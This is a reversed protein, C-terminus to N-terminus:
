GDFRRRTRASMCWCRGPQWSSVERFAAGPSLQGHLGIYLGFLITVLLAPGGLARVTTSMKGEDSVKVRRMAADEQRRLLMMVGLVATFLIFEEGLTDFGRYDYNIANVADTAHREYVALRSIVDGYPGRHEKRGAPVPGAVNGTRLIILARIRTGNTGGITEGCGERYLYTADLLKEYEDRTFYDTPAQTVSIRGLRDTPNATLWGARICFWFFGTLREQKKKKALGGDTWSARFSQAARLDFEKLLVQHSATSLLRSRNRPAYDTIPSYLRYLLVVLGNSTANPKLVVPRV